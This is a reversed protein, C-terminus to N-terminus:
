VPTGPVDSSNKKKIWQGNEDLPLKWGISESVDEISVPRVENSYKSVIEKFNHVKYYYKGGKDRPSWYDGYRFNGRVRANGGKENFIGVSVPLIPACYFLNLSKSNIMQAIKKLMKTESDEGGEHSRNETEWPYLMDLVEKTVMCNMAGM